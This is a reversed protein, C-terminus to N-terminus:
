RGLARLCKLAPDLERYAGRPLNDVILLDPAFEKLAARITRGRLSIIDKLPLELYRPKCSGDPSKSLGPLTLCDMGPPMSNVFAAAERAETVMLNVSQLSSDALVQSILLNRRLHGLGVIGPSYLAIRIRQPTPNMLQSIKSMYTVASHLM